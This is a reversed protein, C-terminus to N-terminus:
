SRSRRILLTILAGLGLMGLTAPEPISTTVVINDYLIGNMVDVTTSGLQIADFSFESTPSAIVAGNKVFATGGDLVYRFQMYSGAGDDKRTLTMVVNHANTGLNVSAFKSQQMTTGVQFWSGQAVVAGPNIGVGTMVDNTTMFMWRISNNIAAPSNSTGTFRINMALSINDNLGLTVTQSLSRESWMNNKGTTSYKMANGSGIGGTDDQVGLTTVTGNTTWGATGGTTFDNSLVVLSASATLSMRATLSVLLAATKITKM